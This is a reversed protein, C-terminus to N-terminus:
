RGPVSAVVERFAAATRLFALDPDSTLAKRNSFGSAMAAKLSELGAEQKKQLSYLCAMNFHAAAKVKPLEARLAQAQAKERSTRDKGDVELFYAFASLQEDNMASLCDVLKLEAKFAAEAEPFKKLALDASGVNQNLGLFNKDIALAPQFEALAMDYKKQSAYNMGQKLYQLLRAVDAPRAPTLGCQNARSVAHPPFKVHAKEYYLSAVDDPTLKTKAAILAFIAKRDENEERVLRSQQEDLHGAPKLLGDAGEVAAGSALMEVIPKSRAEVRQKLTAEDQAHLSLAVAAALALLTLTSKLRTM